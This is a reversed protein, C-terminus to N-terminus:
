NPPVGYSFKAGSSFIHLKKWDRVFKHYEDESEVKSVQHWKDNAMKAFLGGVRKTNSFKIFVPIV